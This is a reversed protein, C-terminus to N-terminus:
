TRYLKVFLRSVLLSAVLTSLSRGTCTLSARSGYDYASSIKMRTLSTHSMLNPTKHNNGAAQLKPRPASTATHLFPQMTSCTTTTPPALTTQHDHSPKAARLKMKTSPEPQIPSTTTVTTTTKPMVFCCSGSLTTAGFKIDFHQLEEGRFCSLDDGSVVLSSRIPVASGKKFKCNFAIFFGQFFLFWILSGCWIVMLSTM